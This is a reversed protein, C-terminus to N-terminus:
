EIDSMGALFFKVTEMKRKIFTDAANLFKYILYCESINKLTNM